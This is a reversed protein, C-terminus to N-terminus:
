FLCVFLSVVLLCCELDQRWVGDIDKSLSGHFPSVVMKLKLSLLYVVFVFCVFVIFHCQHVFM